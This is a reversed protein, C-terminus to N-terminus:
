NLTNKEDHKRHKKKTSHVLKNLSGILPNNTRIFVIFALSVTSPLLGALWGSMYSVRYIIPYVVMDLQGLQIEEMLLINNKNVHKAFDIWIM